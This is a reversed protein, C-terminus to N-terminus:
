QSCRPGQPGLQLRAAVKRLAEAFPEDSSATVPDLHEFPVISPHRPDQPTMWAAWANHVDAATVTSGLALVLVAYIELLRSVDGDPLAGVLEGRIQAAIESLYNV